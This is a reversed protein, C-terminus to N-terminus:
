YRRGAAKQQVFILLSNMNPPLSRPSCYRVFERLDVQREEIIFGARGSRAKMEAHVKLWKDYTEPLDSDNLRRFADYDRQLISPLLYPGSVMINVRPVPNDTGDKYDDTGDKNPRSTRRHEASTVDSVKIDQRAFAPNNAGLVIM